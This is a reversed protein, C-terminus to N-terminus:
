AAVAVIVAVHTHVGHNQVDDTVGQAVNTDDDRSKDDPKSVPGATEVSIRGYRQENGEDNELRGDGKGLCGGLNEKLGSGVVDVQIINTLVDLSERANDATVVDVDPLEGVGLDDGRHVNLNAEGNRSLAALLIHLKGLASALAKVGVTNM